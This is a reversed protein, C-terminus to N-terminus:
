LNRKPCLWSTIMQVERITRHNLSWRGICPVHTQDRTQSSEVQQLYVLGTQTVCSSFSVYGLAWARCCSFVSCHSAWVLCRSFTNPVAVFLWHLWFYFLLLLLYIFVKLFLFCNDVKLFLFILFYICFDLVNYLNIGKDDIYEDWLILLYFTAM